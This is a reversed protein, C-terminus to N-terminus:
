VRQLGWSGVPSAPDAPVPQGVPQCAGQPAPNCLREFRRRCEAILGHPNRQWLDRSWADVEYLGRYGASELVRVHEALPLQGDGPLPRDNDGTPPGAWDSLQVAAIREAFQPLRELLGTEHCLHFPNYALGVWPHGVEDLLGNADELTHLFSWQQRCVPHLPQLALKVRYRAALPALSRLGQVVLRRAHKRIHTREPGTVVTVAQAGVRAATWVALRGQQVAQEWSGSAGGTFGGVWGVTSVLLGSQRVEDIAHELGREQMRRLWLGIAPVGGQRFGALAEPLNWRLTTLQSVALRRHLPLHVEYSVAGRRSRWRATELTWSGPGDDPTGIPVPARLAADPSRM